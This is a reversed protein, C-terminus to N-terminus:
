NITILKGSFKNKITITPCYTIKCYKSDGSGGMNRLLSDQISPYYDFLHKQYSCNPISNITQSSWYSPTNIVTCATPDPNSCVTTGSYINVYCQEYICKLIKNTSNCSKQANCSVNNGGNSGICSWSWPGSGSIGSFSGSLCYNGTPTSSFYQGNSSGCQANIIVSCNYGDYNYGSNCACNGGGSQYSNAPQVTQTGSFNLCKDEEQPNSGLKLAGVYNYDKNATFQSAITNKECKATTSSYTFGLICVPKTNNSSQKPTETKKEEFVCTLGDASKAWGSPCATVASQANFSAVLLILTLITKINM